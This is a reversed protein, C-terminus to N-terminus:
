KIELAERFQKRRDTEQEGPAIAKKFAAADLNCKRELDAVKKEHCWTQIQDFSTIFDNAKSADANQVLKIELLRVVDIAENHRKLQILCNARDLEQSTYGSIERPWEIERAELLYKEADINKGQKLCLIGLLHKTETECHDDILIPNFNANNRIKPLSGKRSEEILALATRAFREGEALDSALSFDYAYLKSAQMNFVIAELSPKNDVAALSIAYNLTKLRDTATEKLESQVQHKLSLAVFRIEKSNNPDSAYSNLLIKHQTLSKTGLQKRQLQNYIALLDQQQRVRQNSESISPISSTTAKHTSQSTREQQFFYLATICPVLLLLMTLWVPIRGFVSRSNQQVISLSPLEEARISDIISKIALASQPRKSPDKRLCDFVLKKLLDTRKDKIQFDFAPAEENMQRYMVELSNGSNFPPMGALCEYMICGISYIDSPENAKKGQCQEPSMYAPTGLIANSKTLTAADAFNARVIGMDIIKPLLGTDTEQLIINAPKLDRHVVNHEHIHALGALVSSFLECFIAPSLTKSKQLVASLTEGPIYETVFYLKGDPSIGSSLLKIVNPHDLAALTKMERLFRQQLESTESGDFDLIKIAVTRRMTTDTASYVSGISGKAILRLNSYRDPLVPIVASDSSDLSTSNPEATDTM